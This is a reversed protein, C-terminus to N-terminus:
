YLWAAYDLNSRAHGHNIDFDKLSNEVSERMRWGM